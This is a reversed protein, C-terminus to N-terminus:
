KKLKRKVKTTIIKDTVAKCERSLLGAQNVDSAIRLIFDHDSIIRTFREIPMSNFLKAWAQLGASGVMSLKNM